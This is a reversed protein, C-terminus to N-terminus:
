GYKAIVDVHGWHDIAERIVAEVRGRLRVDCLTGHCNNHWGNMQEQTNEFDKGVATILDGHTLATRALSRGM